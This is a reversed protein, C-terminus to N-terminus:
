RDGVDKTNKQIERQVDKRTEKIEHLIEAFGKETDRMAGLVIVFKNLAWWWWFVSISFFVVAIVIITKNYLQDWGIFHEFVIAALAVFPLTWAAYAWLSAERAAQQTAQALKKIM